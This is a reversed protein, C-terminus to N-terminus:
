YLILFIKGCLYKFSMLLETPTRPEAALLRMLIAIHSFTGITVRVSAYPVPLVGYLPGNPKVQAEVVYMIRGCAPCFVLHM